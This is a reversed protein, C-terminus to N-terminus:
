QIRPFSPPPPFPTTRLAPYGLSGYNMDFAMHGQDHSRRLPSIIRHALLLRTRLKPIRYLEIGLVVFYLVFVVLETDESDPEPGVFFGHHVPVGGADQNYQAVAIESGKKRFAQGAVDDPLAAL